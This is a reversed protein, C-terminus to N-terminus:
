NLKLFKFIYKNGDKKSRATKNYNRKNFIKSILPSGINLEISASKISIFIKEESTKINFSVIPKNNSKEIIQQRTLLQLNKIRNDMRCANVHDVEFEEPIAGKISEWVFRHQYYNKPKLLKEDCISFYKYGKGNDRMKLIKKLKPMPSKEM